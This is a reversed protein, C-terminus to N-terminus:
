FLPGDDREWIPQDPPDLWRPDMDDEPESFPPPEDLLPGGVMAAREEADADALEAEARRAREEIMADALDYARAAIFELGYRQESAFAAAFHVAFYDRLSPTM